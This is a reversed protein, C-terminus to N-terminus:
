VACRTKQAVRFVIFKGDRFVVAFMAVVVGFIIQRWHRRLADVRRGDLGGVRVYVDATEAQGIDVVEGLGFTPEVAVEVPAACGNEVQGEDFFCVPGSDSFSWVWITEDHGAPM